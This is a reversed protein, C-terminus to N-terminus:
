MTNSPRIVAYWTGVNRKLTSLTTEPVQAPGSMSTSKTSSAPNM